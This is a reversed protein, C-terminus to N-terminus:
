IDGTFAQGIKNLLNTLNNRVHNVNTKLDEESEQGFIQLEVMTLDIIQKLAIIAQQNKKFLEDMPIKTTLVEGYQKAIFNIKHFDGENETELHISINNENIIIKQTFKLNNNIMKIVNGLYSIISISPHIYKSEININYVSEKSMKGM